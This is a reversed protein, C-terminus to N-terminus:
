KLAQQVKPLDILGILIEGRPGGRGSKLNVGAAQKVDDVFDQAAFRDDVSKGDALVIHADRGIGFRGEGTYIQKPAPIIQGSTSQAVVPACTCTFACVIAARFLFTRSLTTIM